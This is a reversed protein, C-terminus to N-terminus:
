GYTTSIGIEPATDGGSKLPYHIYTGIYQLNFIFVQHGAELWRRDSLYKALLSGFESLENYVNIISDIGPTDKGM